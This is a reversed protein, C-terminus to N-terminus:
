PKEKKGAQQLKLSDSAHGQAERALGELRDACLGFVTNLTAAYERVSTCSADPLQVRSAALEDRLRDREDRVAAASRAMAALRIQHSREADAKAKAMRETELRANAQAEALLVLQEARQDAIEREYRAGQYTWAAGFSVAAIAGAAIFQIPIM